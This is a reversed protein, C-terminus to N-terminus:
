NETPQIQNIHAGLISVYFLDRYNRISYGFKSVRDELADSVNLRRRKFINKRNDQWMSFYKENIDPRVYHQLTVPEM